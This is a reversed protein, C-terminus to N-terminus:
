DMPAALVWSAAIIAEWKMLTAFSDQLWSEATTIHLATKLLGIITFMTVLVCVEMLFAPVV